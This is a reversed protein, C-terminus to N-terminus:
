AMIRVRLTAGHRVTVSNIWGVVQVQSGHARAGGWGQSGSARANGWSAQSVCFVVRVGSDRESAQVCLCVCVCVGESLGM